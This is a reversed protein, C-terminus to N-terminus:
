ADAVTVNAVTGRVLMGDQTNILAGNIYAAEDFGTGYDGPGGPKLEIPIGASFAAGTTTIRVVNSGQIAATFGTRNNNVEFGSIAGANLVGLAFGTPGTFTVDIATRTGDTFRASAVQVPGRWGGAFGWEYLVSAAAIRAVLPSGLAQLRDPHTFVNGELRQMDVPAGLTYDYNPEQERLNARTLHETRSDTNSSALLPDNIIRNPEMHLFSFAPDITNGSRFWDVPVISGTPTGDLMPPMFTQAYNTVSGSSHWFQNWTTIDVKNSANRGAFQNLIAYIDSMNRTGGAELTDEITTGNIATEVLIIPWDAPYDPSAAITNAANIFGDGLVGPANAGRWLANDAVSATNGRAAVYTREGVGSAWPTNVTTNDGLEALYLGFTFRCQSQGNFLVTPGVVIDSNIEFQDSGIRGRARYIGPPLDVRVTVDGSAVSTGVSQWDLIVARDSRRFFMMEIPLGATQGAMELTCSFWGRAAARNAPNLTARRVGCLAPSPVNKPRLYKTRTQRRITSGPLLTGLQLLSGAQVNSALNKVPALSLAGGSTLPYWARITNTWITTPDDGLTFNQWETDTGDTDLFLLGGMEGRMYGINQRGFIDTRDQPFTSALTGTSAFRAIGIGLDGLLTAIGAWAGPKAVPTGAIKAGTYSNWADVVFNTGDYRLAWGFADCDAVPLTASYIDVAGGGVEGILRCRIRWRNAANGNDAGSILGISIRRNAQTSNLTYNGLFIPGRRLGAYERVPIRFTGGVSGATNFLPADGAVTRRTLDNSTPIYLGGNGNPATKLEGNEEPFRISSFLAETRFSSVTQSGLGLAIVLNM